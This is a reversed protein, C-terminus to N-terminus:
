ARRAQGGRARLLAMLVPGLSFRGDRAQDTLRRLYGGPSKVAAGKQLIAAVTVAAADEGMAEVAEEWASPSIGLMSRVHAATAHLDRWSGIGHRAYDAIDPCAELVMGLPYARPPPASPAPDLGSPRGRSGRFGPELEAPDPKSSQHHREAQSESANTKTSNTSEALSKDVERLIERLASALGELVPAGASRPPM